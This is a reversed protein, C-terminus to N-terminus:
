EKPRIVAVDAGVPLIVGIEAVHQVVGSAPAEIESVAKEGEVSYLPQGETVEGGDSVHWEVVAGESMSMSIMPLQVKIM